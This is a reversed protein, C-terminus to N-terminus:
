WVTETKIVKGVIKLVELEEDAFVRPPYYMNFSHLEICNEKKIVKKIVGEYGNIVVVALEGNEIDDQKRVLALDGESIKPEMSDGKVKLYFYIAENPNIGHAYEYGLYDDFAVGGVGARVSGVIPLKVAQEKNIEKLFDLANPNDSFSYGPFLDITKRDKAQRIDSNGLLYDVTVGFYEALKVIMEKDPSRRNTEWNSVSGKHVKFINALELGSIGKEKRLEKLRDGFTKM